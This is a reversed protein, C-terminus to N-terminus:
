GLPPTNDGSPKWRIAGMFDMFLFIFILTKFISKSFSFYKKFYKQLLKLSRLDYTWWFNNKRLSLRHALDQRWNLYANLIPNFIKDKMFGLYYTNQSLSSKQSKLELWWAM